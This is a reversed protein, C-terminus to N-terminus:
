MEYNAEKRRRERIKHAMELLKEFEYQDNLKNLIEQGITEKNRYVTKDNIKESYEKKLNHKIRDIMDIKGKKDKYFLKNIIPFHFQSNNENIQKFILGIKKAPKKNNNLITSKKNGENKNKFNYNGGKSEGFITFNETTNKFNILKKNLKSTSKTLKKENKELESLIDIAADSIYINKLNKNNEKYRSRSNPKKLNFNIKNINNKILNKNSKNLKINELIKDDPINIPNMENQTDKLNLTSKSKKIINKKSCKPDRKLSSNYRSNNYQITDNIKPLNLLRYDKNNSSEKLINFTNFNSTNFGTLSGMFSKRRNNLVNINTFYEKIKSEKDLFTRKKKETRNFENKNTSINDDNKNNDINEEFIVKKKNNKIYEEIDSNSKILLKMNFKKRPKKKEEFSNKQRKKYLAINGQFLKELHNKIKFKFVKKKRSKLKNFLSLMLQNEKEDFSYKENVKDLYNRLNVLKSNKNNKLYNNYKDNMVELILLRKAEDYREKAENYQKIDDMKSILDYVREDLKINVQNLFFEKYYSTLDFEKNADIASFISSTSNLEPCNKISVRFDNRIFPTKSRSNYSLPFIQNM